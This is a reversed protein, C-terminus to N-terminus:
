GGGEITTPAHWLTQYGRGLVAGALERRELDELQALIVDASGCDGSRQELRDWIGLRRLAGVRRTWPIMTISEPRPLQPRLRRLSRVRDGADRAMPVLEMYAPVRYTSRTDLLLTTSLLPFYLSVVEAEDINQRVADLDLDIGGDLM